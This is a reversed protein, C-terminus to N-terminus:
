IQYVKEELSMLVKQGLRLLHLWKVKLSHLFNHFCMYKMGSHYNCYQQQKVNSVTMTSAAMSRKTGMDTITDNILNNNNHKLHTNHKLM